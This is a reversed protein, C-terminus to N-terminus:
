FRERLLERLLSRRISRDTQQPSRWWWGDAQMAQAAAVFRECVSEFAADDHNLSFILRGSGVWSLLLGQARLYFQLMWNYRSPQTYLVTWITSLNAVRVPLGAAELRANLAAARANWREDLGDYLQRVAPSDLRELFAQMAGMVYPHANFTGRAFCIDAPREDRWRQMLDRRGCVVGVPLGGGLTKGYTVLDAQVGFYAQAGGPALRFGVFVEDFILVIGRESCVARLRQLWAAYTAHAAHDFHARRGSDVLSSDGPAASNPHLAQLPNVLVCAVDTRQRLVQLSRESLDQLTYTERPPLPNGPGPQVDEWWGHYAGCFRVLYKRRTHYRALRVAQMVAETGSMHFSVEDLGSIAKLREANALVAPHYAGLVPGLAAARAAGEAICVKYFDYGFLDVGYSGTLDHFRNGDLDEVELGTSAQLFNGLKLHERLYPSFQFPVRYRSTFQLDSISERARATMQASRPWRQEYLAALREFGARRQAAVEPPADDAAFFRAEDYAYGPILRAVRQAMRSHGTLSRHKARSLSLRRHLRPLGTAALVALSVASLSLTTEM